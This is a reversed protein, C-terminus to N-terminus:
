KALRACCALCKLGRNVHTCPPLFETRLILSRACLKNRPLGDKLNIVWCRMVICKFNNIYSFLTQPTHVQTTKVQDGLRNTMWWTTSAVLRHVHRARCEWSAVALVITFFQQQRTVSVHFCFRVTACKGSETRTAITCFHLRSM